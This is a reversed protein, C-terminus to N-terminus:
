YFKDLNLVSAFDQRCRPDTVSVCIPIGAVAGFGAGSASDERRVRFGMAGGARLFGSHV